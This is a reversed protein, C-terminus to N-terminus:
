LLAEMKSTMALDLHAATVGDQNVIVALASKAWYDVDGTRSRCRFQDDQYPNYTVRAPLRGSADTGFASETVTGAVFAHVCKRRERRVRARGAPQVQFKADKLMIQHVHAVVRGGRLVSYVKRGDSSLRLNRYVRVYDGPRVKKM